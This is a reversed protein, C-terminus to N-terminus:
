TQEVTEFFLQVKEDIIKTIVGSFNLAGFAPAGCM